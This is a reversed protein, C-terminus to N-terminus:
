VQFIKFLFYGRLRMLRVFSSFYPKISFGEEGCVLPRIAGERNFNKWNPHNQPVQFYVGIGQKM